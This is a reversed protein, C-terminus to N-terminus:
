HGNIPRLKGVSGGQTMLEPSPQEKFPVMTLQAGRWHHLQAVSWRFKAERVQSKVYTPPLLSHWTCGHRATKAWIRPSGMRTLHSFSAFFSNGARTQCVIMWLVPLYAEHGPHCSNRASTVLEDKGCGPLNKKFFGCGSSMTSIGINMSAQGDM